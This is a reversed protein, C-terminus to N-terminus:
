KPPPKKNYKQVIELQRQLADATPQNSCEFLAILVKLRKEAPDDDAIGGQRRLLLLGSLARIAGLNDPPPVNLITKHIESHTTDKPLEIKCYYFSRLLDLPDEVYDKRPFFCHHTDYGNNRNRHRPHYRRKRKSM